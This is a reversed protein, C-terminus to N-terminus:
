IVQDADVEIDFGPLRRGVDTIKNRRSDADLLGVRVQPEREGECSEGSAVATV